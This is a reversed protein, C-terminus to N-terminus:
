KKKVSRKRLLRIRLFYEPVTCIRMLLAFGVGSWLVYQYLPIMENETMFGYFPTLILLLVSSACVTLMRIHPANGSQQKKDAIATLVSLFTIGALVGFVPLVIQYWIGFMDQAWTLFDEDLAPNEATQRFLFHPILVAATGGAALGINIGALIGLKTETQVAQREGYVTLASLVVALLVALPVYTM